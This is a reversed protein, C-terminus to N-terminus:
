NFSIKRILNNADAVYINGNKDVAIGLPNNFSAAAADGNAAGAVGSGALTTVVGLTNIKRILNNESDAVYINGSADLAIGGPTGFSAATGTGNLKGDDGSGAITTVVGAPTIKRILNNGSDAAYINGSADVALGQIIYFSAGAGTGDLSGSASNGALTTVTGDPTIERIDTLEGVYLNGAADVAVCDPENFTASAAPGDQNGRTGSGAYTTVNGAPTIKRILSNFLDAVYVNGAADVAVGYPGNFSATAAPGNANGMTGSGALTSVIGAPTILRVLNNGEDGVFVNGSADAALCAPANFSASAGTGNLAGQNGSGAFLAVTAKKKTSTTDKNNKNDPNAGNKKCGAFLLTIILLRPILWPIFIRKM